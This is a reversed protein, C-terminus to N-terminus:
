EMRQKIMLDFLCSDITPIVVFAHVKGWKMRKGLCHRGSSKRKSRPAKKERFTQVMWVALPCSTSSGLVAEWEEKMMWGDM